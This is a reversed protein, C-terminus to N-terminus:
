EFKRYKWQVNATKMASFYFDNPSANRFNPNPAQQRAYDINKENVFGVIPTVGEYRSLPKWFIYGDCFMSLKFEDYGFKYASSEGPLDAFPSGAIDFGVPYAGDGLKKMVADIYGDAAYASTAKGTQSFWPHHLSITIARKGIAQFLHNGVRSDDLARQGALGIQFPVV